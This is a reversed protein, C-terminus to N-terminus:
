TGTALPWCPVRTVQGSQPNWPWDLGIPNDAFCAPTSGTTVGPPAEARLGQVVPTVLALLAMQPLCLGPARLLKEAPGPLQMRAASLACLDCSEMLDKSDAVSPASNGSPRSGATLGPALWTEQTGTEGGTFHASDNPHQSSAHARVQMSLGTASEFSPETLALWEYRCYIYHYKKGSIGTSCRCCGPVTCPARPSKFTLLM